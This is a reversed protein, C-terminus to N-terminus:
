IVRLMLYFDFWPWRDDWFVDLIKKENVAPVPIWTIMIIIADASFVQNYSNRSTLASCGDYMLREDFM